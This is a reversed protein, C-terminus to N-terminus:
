WKKNNCISLLAITGYFCCWWCNTLTCYFQGRKLYRMNHATKPHLLRTVALDFHLYSELRHIAELLGSGMLLRICFTQIKWWNLQLVSYHISCPFQIINHGRDMWHVTLYQIYWHVFCDCKFFTSKWHEIKKRELDNQLMLAWLLRFFCTDAAMEATAKNLGAVCTCGPAFTCQM